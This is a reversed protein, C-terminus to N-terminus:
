RGDTKEKPKLLEVLERLLTTTERSDRARVEEHRAAFTEVRVLVTALGRLAQTLDDIHRAEVLEFGDPRPPVVAPMQPPTPKRQPKGNSM